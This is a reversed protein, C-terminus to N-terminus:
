AYGVMVRAMELMGLTYAKLGPLDQTGDRTKLQDFDLFAREAAPRGANVVQELRLRGPLKAIALDGIHQAGARVEQCGAVGAAEQLDHCSQLPSPHLHGRYMRDIQEVGRDATVDGDQPPLLPLLSGV